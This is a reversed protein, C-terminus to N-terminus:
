GSLARRCRLLFVRELQAAFGGVDDEVVRRDILGDFPDDVADEEVLAVDAAGARPQEDLFRHVIQHDRLSFSRMCVSITPSGSSLFVSM